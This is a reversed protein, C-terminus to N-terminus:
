YLLKNVVSSHPTRPAALLSFSFILCVSVENTAGLNTDHLSLAHLRLPCCAVVADVLALASRRKWQELAAASHQRFFEALKLDESLASSAQARAAEDSHAPAACLAAQLREASKRGLTEEVLHGELIAAHVSELSLSSGTWVMRPM